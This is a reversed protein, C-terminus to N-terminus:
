TSRRRRLGGIWLIVADRGFEMQKRIRKMFDDWSYHPLKEVVFVEGFIRPEYREVASEVGRPTRRPSFLVVYYRGPHEAYWAEANEFKRRFLPSVEMLYDFLIERADPDGQKVRRALDKVQARSLREGFTSM